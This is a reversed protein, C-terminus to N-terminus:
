IKLEEYLFELDVYVYEEGYYERIKDFLEIVQGNLEILNKNQTTYKSMKRMNYAINFCLNKINFSRFGWFYKGDLCDQLDKKASSLFDFFYDEEPKFQPIYHVTEFQNFGYQIGCFNEIYLGELKDLTEKEPNCYELVRM